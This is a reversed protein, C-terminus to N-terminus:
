QPWSIQVHGNIWFQGDPHRQWTRHGWVTLTAGKLLAGLIREKAPEMAETLWLQGIAPGSESTTEFTLCCAPPGGDPQVIPHFDLTDVDFIPTAAGDASLMESADAYEPEKTM